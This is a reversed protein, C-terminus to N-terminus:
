QLCRCNNKWPTYKKYITKDKKDKTALLLGSRKKNPTQTKSKIPISAETQFNDQNALVATKKIKKNIKKAM